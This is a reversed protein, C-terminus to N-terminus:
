GPKEALLSKIAEIRKRNVGFDSRGIRSASRFYITKNEDDLLFEADDVFRFVKSTFEVHLYNEKETVVRANGMKVILTKLRLLQEERSTSYRLPDIQHKNDSAFSSVCNPSAPCALLQGDKVGLNDPRTGACAPLFALSCLLIGMRTKYKDLMALKVPWYAPYDFHDNVAV